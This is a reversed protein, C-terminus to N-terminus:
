PLTELIKQYRERQSNDLKSPDNLITVIKTRFMSRGFCLYGLDESLSKNEAYLLALKESLNSKITLTENNEPLEGNSLNNLLQTIAEIEEYGATTKKSLEEIETRINKNKEEAEELTDFDSFSQIKVPHIDKENNSAFAYGSSCAVWLLMIKLTYKM